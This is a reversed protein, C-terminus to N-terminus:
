EPLLTEVVEVSNALHTTLLSFRAQVTCWCTACRTPFALDWAAGSLARLSLSHRWVGLSQTAVDKGIHLIVQSLHGVHKQYVLM